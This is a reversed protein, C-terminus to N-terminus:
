GQGGESQRRHELASRLKRRASQLVGRAGSAGPLALLRTIEDVPLGEECRLLLAAAEVPDLEDQIAKRLWDEEDQLEVIEAPGAAQSVMSDEDLEDALWRRGRHLLRLARRRVVTYLWTSFRARGEFQELDRLATLMAEQALDLATDHDRALRLCWQYVRWDYRAFLAEVASRGSASGPEQLYSSALDEDSLAEAPTVGGEKPVNGHGDTM